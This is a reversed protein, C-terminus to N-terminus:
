TLTKAYFGGTKCPEIVCHKRLFGQKKLLIFFINKDISTYDKVVKKYKKSNKCFECMCIVEFTESFKVGCFIDYSKCGCGRCRNPVRLKESKEEVAM